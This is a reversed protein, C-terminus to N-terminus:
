HRFWGGLLRKKNYKTRFLLSRKAGSHRNFILLLPRQLHQVQGCIDVLFQKNQVELILPARASARQDRHLLSAVSCYHHKLLCFTLVNHEPSLQLFLFFGFVFGVIQAKTYFELGKSGHSLRSRECVNVTSEVAAPSRPTAWFDVFIVNWWFTYHQHRLHPSFYFFQSPTECGSSNRDTNDSFLLPASTGASVDTQQSLTEYIYALPVTFWADTLPEGVSPLRWVQCFIFACENITDSAAIVYWLECHMFMQMKTPLYYFKKAAVQHNARMIRM